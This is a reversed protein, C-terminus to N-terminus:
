AASWPCCTCNPSSNGTGHVAIADARRVVGPRRDGVLAVTLVPNTKRVRMGPSAAESAWAAGDPVRSIPDPPKLVPAVPVFATAGALVAAGPYDPGLTGNWPGPEGAIYVGALAVPVVALLAVALSRWRNGAIFPALRVKDEVFTKTLWALLVAVALIVPCSLPGSAAGRWGSYLRAAAFRPLSREIQLAKM